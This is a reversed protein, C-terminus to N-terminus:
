VKKKYRDKQGFFTIDAYGAFIRGKHIVDKGIYYKDGSTFIKKNGEIIMEIEGALVIGWQAAHSHEPLEVDKIFKMFLIQENEGQMLYATCGDFPIDALPLEKIRDPFDFSSIDM